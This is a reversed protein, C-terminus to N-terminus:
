NGQRCDGWKEGDARGVVIIEVIGLLLAIDRARRQKAKENPRLISGKKTEKEKLRERWTEM